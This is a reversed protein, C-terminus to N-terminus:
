APLLPEFGRPLALEIWPELCFEPVPMSECRQMLAKKDDAIVGDAAARNLADFQIIAM